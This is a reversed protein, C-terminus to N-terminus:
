CSYVSALKFLSPQAHKSREQLFGVSLLLVGPDALPLSKDDLVVRSWSVLGTGGAPKVSVGNMFGQTVLQSSQDDWHSNLVQPDALENIHHLLCPRGLMAESCHGTKLNCKHHLWSRTCNQRFQQQQEYLDLARDMSANKAKDHAEHLWFLAKGYQAWHNRLYGFVLRPHPSSFKVQFTIPEMLRAHPRTAMTASALSDNFVWGPKDGDVFTWAASPKDYPRFGSLGDTSSLSTLWGKENCPALTEASDDQYQLAPVAPLPDAAESYKAEMSGEIRSWAFAMCDAIMQTSFWLPHCSFVQDFLHPVGPSAKIADLYSVLVLGYRRSAPEFAVEQLDMHKSCGRPLSLFMIAPESRLLLLSRVLRETVARLKRWYAGQQEPMTELLDNTSYDLLILDPVQGRLINHLHTLAFLSTTAPIALNHYHIPTQPYRSRLWRIFRDHANGNPSMLRLAHEHNKTNNTAATGHGYAVSGGITVISTNRGAAIRHVVRRFRADGGLVMSANLARRSLPYCGGWHELLSSELHLLDLRQSAPCCEGKDKESTAGAADCRSLPHTAGLADVAHLNCSACSGKMATHTSDYNHKFLNGWKSDDEVLKKAGTTNRSACGHAVAASTERQLTTANSGGLYSRMQGALRSYGSGRQFMLHPAEVLVLMDDDPLGSALEVQLGAASLRNRIDNLFSCSIELYRELAETANLDSPRTLHNWRGHVGAVIKVSSINVRSQRLRGRYACVAAAIQEATYTASAGSNREAHRLVFDQLKLDTTIKSCNSRALGLWTWRVSVGQSRGARLRMCLEVLEVPKMYYFGLADGVRLHVTLQDTAVAASSMNRRKTVLRQAVVKAFAAESYINGEKPLNSQWHEVVHYKGWNHWYEDVLSGPFSAAVHFLLTRNM